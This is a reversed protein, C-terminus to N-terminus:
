LSARENLVQYPIKDKSDANYEEIPLGDEGIVEFIKKPRGRQVVFLQSKAPLPTKNGTVKRLGRVKLM